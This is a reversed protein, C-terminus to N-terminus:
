QAVLTIDYEIKLDNSLVMEQAPHSFKVDYKQRDIKASGAVHISNDHMHLDTLKITEEGKVGRLTLEGFVQDDTVKGIKFRSHPHESVLFFDDSSLHEVLKEKTRGKEPEYSDDTPTITTMDAVLEGNVIQGDKVTVTGKAIQLTGNHSYMGVMTGEWKIVSNETDVVYEGDAVGSTEKEVQETTKEEAKPQEGCSAVFMGLALCAIVIPSKKM